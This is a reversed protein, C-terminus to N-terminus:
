IRVVTKIGAGVAARIERTLPLVMDPLGVQQVADFRPYPYTAVQRYLAAFENKTLARLRTMEDQRLRRFLSCGLRAAEPTITGMFDMCLGPTRGVLALGRHIARLAIREEFGNGIALAPNTGVFSLKYLGTGPRRHFVALFVVRGLCTVAGCRMGQRDPRHDQAIYVAYDCGDPLGRSHITGSQAMYRPATYWPRPIDALVAQFCDAELPNGHRTAM